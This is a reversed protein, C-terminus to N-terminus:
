VGSVDRGLEAERASVFEAWERGGGSKLYQGTLDTVTKAVRDVPLAPHLERALGPGRGQGGGALLRFCEEREGQASTIRGVLGIEAVSAQACDNPCGSLHVSADAGYTLSKLILRATRRTDVLGRKCWTSGPCAVVRPGDVIQTLEAPLEPEREAFLFLDHEPGIRMLCDSREVAEALADAEEPQIDGLPFALRVRFRRARGSASAVPATRSPARAVYEQVRRKFLDDGLRERVHRLRARARNRRDGEENFLTLVALVLSVAQQAALGDHTPIGPAPRSGLSGALIAAFTGGSSGVLGVDNIWPRACANACGSLSIKFKRPMRYIWPLAEAATRIAQALPYPDMSGPCLGGGPCVTVNRLTDGCTGVTTMGIEALMRQAAPVDQARLGHLEVDQRMTLHLPYGPTFRVAVAALGRLQAGTLRGGPVRVRELLLGDQRQEYLGLLRADGPDDPVADCPFRPGPASM